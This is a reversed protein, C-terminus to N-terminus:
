SSACSVKLIPATSARRTFTPTLLIERPQPTTTLSEFILRGILDRPIHATTLPPSVIEALEIDDFGTLSVDEPVRLNMTRLERLAGAAMFDNVCVIATPQFGEGFITRVAERGGAFGDAGTATRYEIATSFQRVVELFTEKRSHLPGLTTHHGVFALRRHGLDVLHSVLRQMGARYDVKIHVLGRRETGVDYVVIPLEHHDLEDLLKEDMESVILALGSLRRGIMLRVLAQLREPRYGTSAVMVEYAADHAAAELSRFVDLFFPNELNSVILGIMRSDGGALARAHMNPYYRLEEAARAVRLRTEERVVGVNNLVRSVTATSVGARRAVDALNM